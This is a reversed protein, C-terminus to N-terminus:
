CGPEGDNGCCNSQSRLKRWNNRLLMSLKTGFPGDCERWNTVVNRMSSRRPDSM